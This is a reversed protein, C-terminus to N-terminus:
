ECHPNPPTEPVLHPWLRHADPWSYYNRNGNRKVARIRGDGKAARLTDASVDVFASAPFYPEGDDAQMPRHEAPRFTQVTSDTTHPMGGLVRIIAVQRVAFHMRVDFTTFTRLREDSVGEGRLIPEVAAWNLSDWDPIVGRVAQTTAEDAPVGPKADVPKWSPTSM